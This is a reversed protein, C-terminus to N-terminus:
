GIRDFRISLNTYAYQAGWYNAFEFSNAHTIHTGHDVQNTTTILAGFSGGVKSRTTQNEDIDFTITVSDGVTVNTPGTVQPTPSISKVTTNHTVTVASAPAVFPAFAAMAILVKRLNM